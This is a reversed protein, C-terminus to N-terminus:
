NIEFLNHIMNIFEKRNLTGNGKLDFQEFITLSNNMLQRQLDFIETKNNTQLQSLSLSRKNHKINNNPKSLQINIHNINTSSDDSSRDEIINIVHPARKRIFRRKNTNPSSSEIIYEISIKCNKDNIKGGLQIWYQDRESNNFGQDKAMECFEIWNIYGDNDKVYTQLTNRVQNHNTSSSQSHM